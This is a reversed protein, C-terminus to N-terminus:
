SWNTRLATFSKLHLEFLDHKGSIENYNEDNSEHPQWYNNLKEQLKKTTEKNAILIRKMEKKGKLLDIFLQEQDSLELLKPFSILYDGGRAAVMEDTNILGNVRKQIDKDSVFEIKRERGGM